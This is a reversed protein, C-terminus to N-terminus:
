VNCQQIFKQHKKTKEHHSKNLLSHKGGCACIIKGNLKDKNAGYYEKNYEKTKDKNAEYWEKKYEKQYEKIVEKRQEAYEKMYEKKTRGAIQYNLTAMERIYYGERKRLQEVSECPYNEILEIYFNEIGLENVKSYFISHKCTESKAAERHVSMRKSLPQITSGIYIDDDITNRICYIRGNKYDESNQIM